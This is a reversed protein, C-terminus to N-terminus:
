CDPSASFTSSTVRCSSLSDSRSTKLSTPRQTTCRPVPSRQRSSRLSSTHRSGVRSAPQRWGTRHKAQEALSAWAKIGLVAPDSVTSCGPGVQIYRYGLTWGGASSCRVSGVVFIYCSRAGHNKKRHSTINSYHPGQM